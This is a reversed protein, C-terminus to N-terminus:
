LVVSKPFFLLGWLLLLVFSYVIVKQARYRGEKDKRKIALIFQIMGYVSVLISIVVGYEFIINEIKM